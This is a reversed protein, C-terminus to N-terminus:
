LWLNQTVEEGVNSVSGPYLNPKTKNKKFNGPHKSMNRSMSVKNKSYVSRVKSSEGQEYM